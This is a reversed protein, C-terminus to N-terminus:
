GDIQYREKSRNVDDQYSENIAQQIKLYVTLEDMNFSKLKKFTKEQCKQNFEEHDRYVQLGKPTLHLNYVRKNDKNRVQEVLGKEVLKRVSQSCASPTKNLIAALESITIDPQRGVNNVIYAEAQYLITEGYHHPLSDYESMLAYATDQEDWIQQLLENRNM